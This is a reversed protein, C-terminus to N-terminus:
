PTTGTAAGPWPWRRPEPLFAATKGLRGRGLRSRFWVRAEQVPWAILVDHCLALGFLGTSRWSSSSARGASSSSWSSRWWPVSTAAAASRRAPGSRRRLKHITGAAVLLVLIFGIAPGLRDPVPRRRVLLLNVVLLALPGAALVVLGPGHVACPGNGCGSSRVPQDAASQRAGCGPGASRRPRLRAPEVGPVRDGPRVRHASRIALCAPTRCTVGERDEGRGRAPPPHGSAAAPPTGFAGDPGGPWRGRPPPLSKFM